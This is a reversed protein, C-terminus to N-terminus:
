NIIKFNSANKEKWYKRKTDFYGPGLSTTAPPFGRGRGKTVARCTPSNGLAEAPVPYGQCAPGSKKMCQVLVTIYVNQSAQSSRSM